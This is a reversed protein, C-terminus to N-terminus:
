EKIIKITKTHNEFRVKVLYSGSNLGSMDVQTTNSNIVNEIVRQGLLNYVAVNSINQIYSLTLVDKVPNPYFKFDSATFDVNSLATTISIDDLMLANLAESYAHFGFYYTDTATPTFTETHTEYTSDVIGPHDAIENVMSNANNAIGYSVKLKGLTQGLNGYRYSITYQTGANLNIGQTFFWTNSANEYNYQYLTNSTFNVSPYEVVMWENGNDVNLISTCNTQSPNNISEFNETYPVETALCLTRFTIPGIWAGNGNPTGCASRVWINYSTSGSLNSLSFSTESLLESPTLTEPNTSEDTAYVVQWNNESGSAAWEATATTPSIATLVIDQVDPCLPAIEWRIDDLNVSYGVLKFGIYTDTGEYVTFDIKYEQYDETVGIEELMSFGAQNTSSSLTGVELSVDYGSAYFKLRHTGSPLTSLNPSVLIIETSEYNKQIRVAKQGSFADWNIVSVSDYSSMQNGRVISSWCEPLAGSATTDFSENFTAIPLCPTTFEIPGIWAGNGNPSGCKTRIWVNYSTDPELSSITAESTGAPSPTIPSLTNPDIISAAGYVLDWETEAGGPVWEFSASTTTLGTVEIETVDPCLPAVEWRIDDLYASYGNLKIGIFTDTGSYVTFDIAYNKYIGTLEVEEITSFEAQNSTSTLTGVELSAGESYSFGYFKLRHTGTALTSLNPTVLFIETSPSDRQLLISNPGSYPNENNIHAYDNQSVEDGRIIASWCNPLDGYGTTDFNENLLATPLCPTTFSLPGIWDGEDIDCISRVWVNYTTAPELGSISAEPMDIPAPNIPTLTSPDTVTTAGYVVDWETEEGGPVWSISASNVNAEIVEIQTVDPCLPAVEWRIDDLFVFSGSTLRFGIFTDTGSYDTFDVIYENNGPQIILEEGLINFDAGESSGNLTGIELTMSEYAFGFFKLRHTGLSLTGIEPSVLIINADPGSDSRYLQVSRTDDNYSSTTVSAYQSIGEGGIIASWCTPLDGFDTTDFNEEFLNIPICGSTFNLKNWTSFESGCNAKIYFYYETAPELTTVTYETTETVLIGTTTASPAPMGAELVLVEWSTEDESPEWAFMASTTTIGSVGISTPPFCDLQANITVTHSEQTTECSDNDSYHLRIKSLGINEVTLPSQGHIIVNNNWDTVTIYKHDGSENHTCTFVYDFGVALDSLQSYHDWTWIGDSIEQLIGLNNSAITENPYWDTRICQSYSGWALLLLFASFFTNRRM